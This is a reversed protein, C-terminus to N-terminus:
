GLVMFVNTFLYQLVPLWYLYGNMKSLANVVVFFFQFASPVMILLACLLPLIIQNNWLTRTWAAIGSMLLFLFLLMRLYLNAYAEFSVGYSLYILTFVALLPVCIFIIGIIYGIWRDSNKDILPSLFLVSIIGLPLYIPSFYRMDPLSGSSITSGHLVRLYGLFTIVAIFGSFLFYTTFLFFHM